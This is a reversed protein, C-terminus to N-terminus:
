ELCGYKLCRKLQTSMCDAVADNCYIFKEHFGEIVLGNLSTVRSLSVYAQGAAFTKDLSVVAKDTTMGQVKHATCAWCLKLPFQHRVWKQGLSEEQIEIPVSSCENSSSAFTKRLKMGVKDNDFNVNICKVEDSKNQSMVLQSVNGCVGNVLGDSIDINKILMVRAGVGLLVSQPLSGSKKSQNGQKVKKANHSDTEYDKAEILM